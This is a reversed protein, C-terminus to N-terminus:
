SVLIKNTALKITCKYQTYIINIYNSDTHRWIIKEYRFKITLTTITWLFYWSYLKHLWYVEESCFWHRTIKSSLQVIGSFFATHTWICRTWLSFIFHTSRIRYSVIAGTFKVSFCASLPRRREKHKLLACTTLISM